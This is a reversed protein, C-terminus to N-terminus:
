NVNKIDIIVSNIETNKTLNILSDIKNKQSASYSTYYIAKLNTPTKLHKVFDVEPNIKITKKLPIPSIEKKEVGPNIKIPSYVNLTYSSL